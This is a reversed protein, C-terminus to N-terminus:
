VKARIARTTCTDSFLSVFIMPFNCVKLDFLEKEGTCWVSYYLSYSEGVM